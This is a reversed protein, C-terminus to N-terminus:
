ATVGGDMVINAGTVFAGAASALFVAGGAIEDPEGARKLAYAAVKTKLVEPDAWMPRATFTKVLGPSISNVRINQEGYERALNRALQNLGAKAICYTGVFNNGRLAGVSSILIMSGGGQKILHPAAMHCLWHNSRLDTNITEAFDDDPIDRALGWFPNVAANCVLTDLQGWKAITKDILNQLHDKKAIDCEISTAIEKGKGHEANIAKAVTECSELKSSSIVVRAGHQAMRRAIAEGIGRSSGTVVAVQGSLDFLNNM